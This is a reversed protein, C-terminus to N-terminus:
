SVIVLIGEFVDKVWNFTIQPKSTLRMLWSQTSKLISHSSQFQISLTNEYLIEYFPFFDPLWSSMMGDIKERCEVILQFNVQM